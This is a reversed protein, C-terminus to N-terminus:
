DGAAQDIRYTLKYRHVRVVRVPLGNVDYVGPEAPTEPGYTMIGNAQRGFRLLGSPARGLYVVQYDVTTKVEDHAPMPPVETVEYHCSAPTLKIHWLTDRTVHGVELGTIGNGIWLRDSIRGDPRVAVYRHDTVGGNTAALVLRPSGPIVIPNELTGAPLQYTDLGAKVECPNSLYFRKTAPQAHVGIRQRTTRVAITAGADVTRTVGPQFDTFVHEPPYYDSGTVQSQTRTAYLPGCGSCALAVAICLPAVLSSTSNRM